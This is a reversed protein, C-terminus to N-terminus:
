GQPAQRNSTPRSGPPSRQPPPGGAPSGAESSDSGPAPELTSPARLGSGSNGSAVPPTAAIGGSGSRGATGGGQLAEGSPTSPSPLPAAPPPQVRRSPPRQLLPPGEEVALTQAVAPASPVLGARLSAQRRPSVAGGHAGSGSGSGSGTGAILGPEPSGIGSPGAGSPTGLANPLVSASPDAASEAAPGAHEGHGETEGVSGLAAAAAMLTEHVPTPTTPSGVPLEEAADHSYHRADARMLGGVSRESPGAKIRHNDGALEPAQTKLTALFETYGIVGDNNVDMIAMFAAIEEETLLDGLEHMTVKLEQVSIEGNGDKDFFQFARKLIEDEDTLDQLMSYWVHALQGFTYAKKHHLKFARIKSDIIDDTPNLGMAYLFVIFDQKTLHQRREELGLIKLAKNATAIQAQTLNSNELTLEQEIHVGKKKLRDRFGRFRGFM